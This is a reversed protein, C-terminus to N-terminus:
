GIFTRVSDVVHPSAQLSLAPSIFQSACKEIWGTRRGIIHSEFEKESPDQVLEAILIKRRHICQERSHFPIIGVGIGVQIYATKRGKRTGGGM